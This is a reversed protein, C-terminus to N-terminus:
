LRDLTNYLNQLYAANLTDAPTSIAGGPANWAGSEIDYISAVGTSDVVATYTPTAIFARPTYSPSLIDHSFTFQSADLGMAGLLTAAIDTQGATRDIVGRRALAGGTMILPVRHRGDIDRPDLDLPWCGQHDPVLIVLSNDWRPSRSLANIFATACSDTYAFANLRPESAFRPNSYPVEFPEHSSSTQIVRFAPKEGEASANIDDLARSFLYEDAVGWKGRPLSKDYDDQTVIKEFGTNLLYSLQNAFGADGGYYFSTSYGAGALTSALSPLHRTKEPYKMVSTTPQAPFGNLIAPLSRDTRFSGAYMRSMVLGGRAVSDLGTAVAEGGLSPFLHNSFSELIIIYVDPRPTTLLSDTHASGHPALSAMEREVVDDPLLRFMKNFAKRHTASYLLSFAPNVAAHNLRMDNSFYASSLNITSVGFGGRMPIFLLGTVVLMAVARKWSRSHTDGRNIQAVKVSLWYIGAALAIVAVIELALIGVPVSALALSPDSVFYFLPTVDLKFDWYGYLATDVAVITVVLFSVVALYCKLALKIVRPRKVMQMFALLLGPLITLYAATSLDMRLGHWLVSLLDEVSAVAYYRHYVLMFVVKAVVFFTTWLLYLSLFTRLSRKM